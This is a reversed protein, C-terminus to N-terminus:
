STWEIYMVAQTHVPKIKLVLYEVYDKWVANVEIKEVYLIEGRSNREVGGCVFFCSEWYLSDNPISYLDSKGNALVTPEFSEDGIRYNNVARDDGNNMVKNGNVSVTAVNSDRPNRVPVNEIVKIKSDVQSLLEQLWYSSQGGNLKWLAALIARRKTLQSSTFLVGFTKEWMDPFRTMDPFIDSYALEIENRVDDPLVALAKMLKKQNNDQILRFARGRPFLARIM